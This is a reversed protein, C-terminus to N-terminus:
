AESASRGKKELADLGTLNIDPHIVHSLATERNIGLSEPLEFYDSAETPSDAGEEDFLPEPHGSPERGIM